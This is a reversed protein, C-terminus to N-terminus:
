AFFVNNVVRECTSGQKLM